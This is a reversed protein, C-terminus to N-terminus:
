VSNLASDSWQPLLKNNRRLRLLGRKFPHTGDKLSVYAIIGQVPLNTFDRARLGKRHGPLQLRRRTKLTPYGAVAALETATMTHSPAGHLARLM